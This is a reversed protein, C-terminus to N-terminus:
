HDVLFRGAAVRTALRDDALVADEILGGGEPAHLMQGVGTVFGVHFVRGDGGAFFYLDGPMEDGLAVPHAVAYQAHADRPVVVGAQRFAYHVLGSCDLGWPSTGGWLYRLGVFRQAQAMVGVRDRSVPGSPGDVASTDDGSLSQLHAARVWGPYGRPEDPAPQWPAAVRVWGDPGRDLLDVPEDRLLQTLTRGHLGFRASADLGTTWAALDPCDRVAPEDVLRPADPSTWVTAVEATVKSETM